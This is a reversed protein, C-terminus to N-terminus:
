AEQSHMGSALWFSKRIYSHCAADPIWGTGDALALLFLGNDPMTPPRSVVDAQHASALRAADVGHIEEDFWSANSPYM